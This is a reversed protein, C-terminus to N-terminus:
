EDGLEPDSSDRDLGRGLKRALSDGQDRDFYKDLIEMAVPAAKEGGHGAHELFVVVAIEPDDSPAYSAFWAHDRLRFTKERNPVRVQGIAHVQATGTKGSVELDELREEYATGGERNVARRLGTRIEELQTESFGVQKRPRSPYEFLTRGRGTRIEDVIRPYYVDGGNAVAAYAMAAQLPTVMTNGQGLVINLAFGHQYGNPSNERHWKKTPVRGAAEDNLPLGTREGFGFRYAYEAIRDIGLRDALRYFYVDCSHQLAARLDVEDHGGWKWCRFRRGGFEYYGPCELREDVEVVEQDLGAYAPAIKFISGPFYPRVTKDLMPKFPDNSNRMKELKSLQGSWSNPNFSPKSYMALLSGDRPDVAVVAGSPYPEMAEDVILQLEADLTLHLDRGPVPSIRRNDGLLLRTEAEGQRIGRADVVSRQMGPSGRLIEEFAKELGMRGIYDSPGYGFKRRQELESPGIEGMYGITHAAVADLPYHRRSDVEVDVGPLRMRNTELRAIQARTAGSRVTVERREEEIAERLEDVRGDSLNLYRELRELIEDVDHNRVIPPTAVVKYFARNGALTVGERDFIRGRPPDLESTEVINQESARYFEEGRVLQLYWLRAVVLGLLVLGALALWRYRGEYRALGGSEARDPMDPTEAM